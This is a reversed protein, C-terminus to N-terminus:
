CAAIAQRSRPVGVSSSVAPLKIGVARFAFKALRVADKGLSLSRKIRPALVRGLHERAALVCHRLGWLQVVRAKTRPLFLPSAFRRDPPSRSAPPQRSPGALFLMCQDIYHGVCGFTGVVATLPHVFGRGRLAMDDLDVDATDATKELSLRM